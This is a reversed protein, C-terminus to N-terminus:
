LQPPSTSVSELLEGAFFSLKVPKHLVSNEIGEFYFEGKVVPNSEGLMNKFDDYTFYGEESLFNM